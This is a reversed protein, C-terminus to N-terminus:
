CGLTKGQTGHRRDMADTLIIFKTKKLNEESKQLQLQIVMYLVSFCCCDESPRKFCHHAEWRALAPEQRVGLAGGCASWGQKIRLWGRSARGMVGCTQEACCGVNGCIWLRSWLIARHTEGVWWNQGLNWTWHGQRTQDERTGRCGIEIGRDLSKNGIELRHTEKWVIWGKWWALDVGVSWTQILLCMKYVM